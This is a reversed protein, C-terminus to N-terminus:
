DRESRKQRLGHKVALESLFRRSVGALEAARLLNGDARRLVEEVYVREFEDTNARRADPLSRLADGDLFTPPLNPRGEKIRQRLADPQVAMHMVVNRLERVNGPWAYSSFLEVAEPSLTVSHERAFQQALVPLDEVRERLPPLHVRAVSLRYYLDERFRKARVEEVLNRNTAVVFRVDHKREKQEGVRKSTRQEIARLLIPQVELPMEGIEDLFLTGGDAQEFLGARDSDAGTFAGRCHGFLESAVLNSPTAGADFILFPGAARPSAAHLASAALEKGTGTEGDILVTVNSPALQELLAVVSRMKVSYASLGAFVGPQVLPLSRREGRAFIALTTDGLMLRTGDCLPAREVLTGDIRLGNKSGLDQVVYGRVTSVIEAHRASVTPDHLVLGCDASSGVTVSHPGLALTQGRDPGAVVEVEAADIELRARNSEEVVVTSIVRGSVV